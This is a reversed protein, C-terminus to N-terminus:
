LSLQASFFQHKQVTHSSFVRLLGKSQLSILGTLRLPFWDQINMPFGPASVSAGISPWRIHLVSESSFVKNSPFISPLIPPCCLILHNLPLVSKILSKSCAWSIPSPFPLRAHQTWTTWFQSVCSLLPVASFKYIIMRQSSIHCFCHSYCVATLIYLFFIKQIVWYPFFKLKPQPMQIPRQLIDFHVHSFHIAKFLTNELNYSHNGLDNM